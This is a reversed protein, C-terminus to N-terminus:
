PLESAIGELLDADFSPPAGGSLCLNLKMLYAVFRSENGEFAKPAKFDLAVVIKGGTTLSFPWIWSGSVSCM